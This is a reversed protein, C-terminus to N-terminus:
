VAVTQSGCFHIQLHAMDEHLDAPLMSSHRSAANYFFSWEEQDGESMRRVREAFRIVCHNRATNAGIDHHRRACDKLYYEIVDTNQPSLDAPEFGGNQMKKLSDRLVEFFRVRYEQDNATM